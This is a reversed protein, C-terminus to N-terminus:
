GGGDIGLRRMWDALEREAASGSGYAALMAAHAEPRHQNLKFKGELRQVDIEFGVIGALLRRGFDAAIEDWQAAYAPEHEAILAKLLREKGAEDDVLHVPGSAHVAVYSWTPVRQRDPYVGPSMYADPGRFIALAEVGGALTRWHPNARALHGLLTLREGDRDVQLPCHSVFPAGERVSVLMALPHARMLATCAQLDRVQFQPPLYLSARPETAPKATM